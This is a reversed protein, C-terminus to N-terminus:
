LHDKFSPAEIELKKQVERMERVQEGQKQEKQLMQINFNQQQNDIVQRLQEKEQRLQDTMKEFTTM